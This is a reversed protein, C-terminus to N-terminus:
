PDLVIEKKKSNWHAIKYKGKLEGGFIYNYLNNTMTSDRCYRHKSGKYTAPICIKIYEKLLGHNIVKEIHKTKAKSIFNSLFYVPIGKLKKYVADRITNTYNADILLVKLDLKLGVLYSAMNVADTGGMSWGSVIVNSIDYKDIIEKAKATIGNGFKAAFAITNEDYIAEAIEERFNYKTKPKRGNAAPFDGHAHLYIVMRKPHDPIYVVLNSGTVTKM